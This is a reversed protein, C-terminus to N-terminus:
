SSCMRAPVVAPCSKFRDRSLTRPLRLRVLLSQFAPLNRCICSPHQESASSSSSIAASKEEASLRM